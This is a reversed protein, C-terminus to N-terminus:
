HKHADRDTRIHTEILNAETQLQDKFANLIKILRDIKALSVRRAKATGLLFELKVSRHCDAVTLMYHGWRYEGESSSEAEALIYSTHGTSIPSLFVRKRYSFIGKAM